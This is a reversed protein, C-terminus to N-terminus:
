FDPLTQLLSLAKAADIREEPDPFTMAKVLQGLPSLWWTSDTRLNQRRDREPYTCRALTYFLVGLAFVDTKKTDWSRCGYRRVLLEPAAYQPTGCCTSTVVEKTGFGCDCLLASKGKLLINELKIDRHAIGNDHMDVVLKLLNMFFPKHRIFQYDTNGLALKDNASFLDGGTMKEMVIFVEDNHEFACILSPVEVPTESDLFRHIEVERKADALDKEYTNSNLSIVKVVHKDDLSFVQGCAGAGIRLSSTSVRVCDDELSSVIEATGYISVATTTEDLSFTHDTTEESCMSLTFSCTQEDGQKESFWRALSSM